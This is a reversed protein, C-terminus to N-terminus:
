IECTVTSHGGNDYLSTMAAIDCPSIYPFETTMTPAM